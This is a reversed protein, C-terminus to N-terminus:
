AKQRFSLLVPAGKYSRREAGQYGAKRAVGISALNGPDIVCLTQNGNFHGDGWGLAAVVAETAFGRGHAWTALAWGIEIGDGISPEMERKFNAFGVEGVFKGSRRDEIVWYGYGLLAWLGAYRLLRSWVEEGSFPRGGVYRTVVPDGWMAASPAFDAVRHGRLRLRPTDIVPVRSEPPPPLARPPPLPRPVVAISPPPAHVAQLHTLTPRGAVAVMPAAPTLSRDLPVQPRPIPRPPTAHGDPPPLPAPPRSTPLAPRPDPELPVHVAELSTMTPHTHPVPQRLRQEAAKHGPVLQVIERFIAMAEENRHERELGAAIDELVSAAEEALGIRQLLDALIPLVHAYDAALRPAKEKQLTRLQKYAAVSKVVYGQDSYFKGVAEYSAMADPFAGTKAYLDALKLRARADRPDDQVAKLLEAIATQDADVGM